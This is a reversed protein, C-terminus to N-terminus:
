FIAIRRSKAPPTKTRPLGDALADALDVPFASVIPPQKAAYAVEMIWSAPKGNRCRWLDVRWRAREISEISNGGSKGELPLPRLRWRTAAAVPRERWDRALDGNPWRRLIFCPIQSKEAALQLRRSTTLDVKAMEGVVAGLGPCRLAEEMAWAAQSDRELTLLILRRTDLGLGALGPPYLDTQTAAWLIPLDPGCHRLCLALFAAAIAGQEGDLDAGAIEHAAGASVEAQALHADIETVGTRLPVSRQDGDPHASQIQAITRRLQDLSCQSVM